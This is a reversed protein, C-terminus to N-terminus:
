NFTFKSVIWKREFIKWLFYFRVESNMEVQLPFDNSIFLLRADSSSDVVNSIINGVFAFIWHDISNSLSPFIHVFFHIESRRRKWRRITSKKPREEFLFYLISLAITWQCDFLFANIAYIWNLSINKMRETLERERESIKRRWNEEGMETRLFIKMNKRERKEWADVNRKNSNTFQSYRVIGDICVSKCM